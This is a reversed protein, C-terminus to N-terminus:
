FSRNLEKGLKECDDRHRLDQPFIETSLAAVTKGDRHGSDELEQRLAAEGPWLISGRSDARRLRPTFGTRSRGLPRGQALTIARKVLQKEPKM